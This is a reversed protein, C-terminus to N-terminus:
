LAASNKGNESGFCIKKLEFPNSGNDLLRFGAHVLILNAREFWYDLGKIFDFYKIPIDSLQTAGFEEMVETGGNRLWIAAYEKSQPAVLMMQEHNGRLCHVNNGEEKLRM